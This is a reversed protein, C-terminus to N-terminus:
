KVVLRDISQRIHLGMAERAAIPDGAELARIVKREPEAAEELLLAIDPHGSIIRQMLILTEEIFEALLRNGSIQAIRVHVKYNMMVRDEAPQDLLGYLYDLDQRTIRLAAEAAAEMELIERVRYADIAESISVTRVLHGRKPLAVLVRDGALRNLAERVPTRSVGFRRAIDIESLLTGAEITGSLIEMKLSQYITDSNINSKASPESQTM